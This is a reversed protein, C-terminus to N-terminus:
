KTVIYTPLYTLVILRFGRIPIVQFKACYYFMTDFGISKPNLLQLTV